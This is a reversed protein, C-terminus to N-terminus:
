IKHFCIRLVAPKEDIKGAALCSFISSIIFGTQVRKTFRFVKNLEKNMGAM